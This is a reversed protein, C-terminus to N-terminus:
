WIRCIECLTYMFHKMHFIVYLVQNTTAKIVGVPLTFFLALGCALFVGWWPLQLQDIYYECTCITAVINLVLICLFWWEPVRKYKRMLKTHVDMKKEQFASKSLQWIDRCGHFNSNFFMVKHLTFFMIIIIIKRPKGEMFSSFMFLLPQSARM